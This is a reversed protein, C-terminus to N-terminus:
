LASGKRARRRAIAPSLHILHHEAPLFASREGCHIDGSRARALPPTYLPTPTMAQVLLEPNLVESRLFDSSMIEANSMQIDDNCQM